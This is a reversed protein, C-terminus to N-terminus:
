EHTPEPLSTTDSITALSTTWLTFGKLVTPWQKKLWERAQPEEEFKTTFTIWKWPCNEPPDTPFKKIKLRVMWFQGVKSSWPTHIIHGVEEGDAKILTTRWPNGVAALGTEAKEKKFTLRKMESGKM